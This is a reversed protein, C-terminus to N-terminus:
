WVQKDFDTFSSNVTADRFSRSGSEEEIISLRTKYVMERKSAEDLQNQLNALQPLVSAKSELVLSDAKQQLQRITADKQELFQKLTSNAAVLEKNEQYMQAQDEKLASKAM